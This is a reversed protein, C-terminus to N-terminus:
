HPNATRLREYAGSFRQQLRDLAFAYVRNPSGDRDMQVMADVDGASLANLTDGCYHIVARPGRGFADLFKANEWVIDTGTVASIDRVLAVLEPILSPKLFSARLQMTIVQRAESQPTGNKALFVELSDLKAALADDKPVSLAEMVIAYRQSEAEISGLTMSLLAIIIALFKRMASREQDGTGFRGATEKGCLLSLDQSHHSKPAPKQQLDTPM